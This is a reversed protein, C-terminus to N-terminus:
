IVKGEETESSNRAKMIGNFIDDGCAAIGDAYMQDLEGAPM